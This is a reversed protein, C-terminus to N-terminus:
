YLGVGVSFWNGKCAFAQAEQVRGSVGSWMHIHNVHLLAFLKGPCRLDSLTILLSCIVKAPVSQARAKIFTGLMQQADVMATLVERLM